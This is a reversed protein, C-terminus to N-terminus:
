IGQEQRERKKIEAGKIRCRKEIKKPENKAQGSDFGVISGVLWGVM